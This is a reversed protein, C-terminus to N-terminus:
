GIGKGKVPFYDIIHGFKRLSEAQAQIFPSIAFTTSNGSFVFLVKM